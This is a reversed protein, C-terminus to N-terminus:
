RIGRGRLHSLRIGAATLSSFGIIWVPITLVLFIVISFGAATAKDVGFLTLGLTTFFQYSGVNAPANPIATGLRVIFFVVAGTWFPVNLGCAPMMLWFALSQLGLTLFSILAAPWLKGSTAISHSAVLLTRLFSRVRGAPEPATAPRRGLRRVFWALGLAAAIMAAGFIKATRAIGHPLSVFVAAAGLSAALAVGDLLREVAISAIVTGVGVALWRSVIFARALEGARLPVIESTFLGAYIAQTARLVRIRGIPALLVSWRWGQGTVAMIDAVVAAVAWRWDRVTIHALLEHPRVDYLAWVLGALALAYGAARKLWERSRPGIPHPLNQSNLNPSNM